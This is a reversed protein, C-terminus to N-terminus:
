LVPNILVRGLERLMIRALSAPISGGVHKRGYFVSSVTITGRSICRGSANRGQFEITVEDEGGGGSFERNQFETAATANSADRNGALKRHSGRPDSRKMNRGRTHCPTRAATHKGGSFRM